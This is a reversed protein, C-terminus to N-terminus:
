FLCLQKFIIVKEKEVNKEKEKTVTPAHVVKESVEQRIATSSPPTSPMVPSLSPPHIVPPPTPIKIRPPERDEIRPQMFLQPPIPLNPMAPHQTILSGPKVLPFRPFLTHGIHPPILGPAPPFHSFFPFVPPQQTQSMIEDRPTEVEPTKPKEPLLYDSENNESKFRKPSPTKLSREKSEKKDKNKERKRKKVETKDTKRTPLIIDPTRTPPTRPPMTPTAPPSIDDDYPFIETDSADLNDTQKSSPEAPIERSRQIVAEITESIQAWRVERQRNNEQDSVVLIPSSERSNGVVDIHDTKEEKVKSIKKFINLKQKDPESTLKGDVVNPDPMKSKETIKESFASVKFLSPSTSTNTKEPKQPKEEVKKAPKQQTVSVNPLFTPPIVKNKVPKTKNIGSQTNSSNQAMMKLAGSKLAKLKSLEKMSVLKKVNPDDDDAIQTDGNGSEKAKNNEKDLLKKIGDVGPKPLNKKIKKEGKVEPPVAPYSLPQPSNSRSDSPQIPTRPEPLKGERAPSLFGSTTMMVSSIERLPRGEEGLM